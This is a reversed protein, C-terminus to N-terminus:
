WEYCFRSTIWIRNESGKETKTQSPPCCRKYEPTNQHLYWRSSHCHNRKIMILRHASTSRQFDVLKLTDKIDPHPTTQLGLTPHYTKDDLPVLESTTQIYTNTSADINKLEAKLHSIDPQKFAEKDVKQISCRIKQVIRRQQKHNLQAAAVATYLLPSHDIFDPIADEPSHTTIDKLNLEITGPSFKTTKTSDGTFVKMLHESAPSRNKPSDGYQIEDKSDHTATKTTGTFVDWYRINHM